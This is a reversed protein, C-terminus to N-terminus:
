NNSPSPAIRKLFKDSINKSLQFSIFRLKKRPAFIHFHPFSSPSRVHISFPVRRSLVVRRASSYNRFRNREESVVLAILFGKKVPSFSFNRKFNRGEKERERKTGKKRPSVKHSACDFSDNDNVRKEFANRWQSNIWGDTLACLATQKHNSM